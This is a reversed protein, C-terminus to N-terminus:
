WGMLPGSFGPLMMFVMLAKQARLIEKMLHSTDIDTPRSHTWSHNVVAHGGEIAALVTKSHENILQGVFFFTGRAQYKNLIRVIALTSSDPGDDFTLAVASVKSNYLFYANKM